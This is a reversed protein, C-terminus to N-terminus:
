PSSGSAPPPAATSSAPSRRDAGAGRAPGPRARPDRRPRRGGARRLRLRRHPDRPRRLLRLRLRGLRRRVGAPGGAGRDADRGDGGAARGARDRRRPAPRQDALRLRGMGVLGRGAGADGPRPGGLDPARGDAGTVQTFAFVFVLDFFLELPTVQESSSRAPARGRARDADPDDDGGDGLDDWRAPPRGRARRRAGPDDADLEADVLEFERELEAVLAAEADDLTTGPVEDAVSGATAPDWDLELAAYVPELTARVCSATPSWSCGAPLARRRRDPAPRDRRAEGARPRQRELCRPLVRRAGRRGPRRRRAGAARAAVIGAIREFREHTGAVPRESRARGPSPLTGEHFLAARGGALRVVPEFGADRAARRRGRLRSRCPGAELLRAGPRPPAAAPDGAARRRRGADPDGGLGRHRLRAPRSIGAQDPTAPAQPITLTQKCTHGGDCM